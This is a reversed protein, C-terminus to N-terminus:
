DGKCFTVVDQVDGTRDVAELEARLSVVPEGDIAVIEILSDDFVVYNRFGEGAARSTGDLYRVGAVGHQRLQASSRSRFFEKSDAEQLNVGAKTLASRIKENQQSLPVDFDIFDDDNANIIVEYLRGPEVPPGLEGSDLREMDRRMEAIMAETEKYKKSDFLRKSLTLDRQALARNNSIENKALARFNAPNKRYAREIIFDTERSAARKKIGLVSKYHRAIAENQAFYLGYGYAQNGEGTGIRSLDFRDFEHPSGHFAKISALHLGFVAGGGPLAHQRMERRAVAGTEIAEFVDRVDRFGLGDLANRVRALFQVIIDLLRDIPGGGDMEGFRRGNLSYDSFMNAITEERLLSEVYDDGFDGYAKKYLSAYTADIAYAKRLGMREAFQYMTAFEDDTLLGTQRLAHITEHRATRVPDAAALSVYVIRDAGDWVGNARQGGFMVEAEVRLRVSAPLMAVTRKLEAGIAEWEANARATRTMSRAPDGADALINASDAKAPDFAANVSRINSPDFVFLLDGDDAKVRIADNGASRARKVLEEGLLDWVGVQNFDGYLDVLLDAYNKTAFEKTVVLINKAKTYFPYIAGQVDKPMIPLDNGMGHTTRAYYDAVEPSSTMVFGGRDAPRRFRSGFKEPDIVTIDAWTGHLWQTTTDFGARQAALESRKKEIDFLVAQRKDAADPKTADEIERALATELAKVQAQAEPGRPDDFGHARLPTEARMLGNLGDRELTEAVRRAFAEGARKPAMGGAVARAADSLWDSVPGSTAALREIVDAVSAAEQARAANTEALTNGAAEIRGAERDLLAFLRADGKLAQLAADLTKVRERMLSREVRVTGLLTMQEEAHTPLAMLEGVLLRAERVNAPDAAALEDVMSQHRSRDPVLDGILAAYNPPVVGAVVANFAEGSLRALSRAQRMAESGLPVSSDIIDPRERIIAAADVVSGSGEQLNKKAALARVDGPTWGDAERFIFAQVTTEQDALRLALSRRQHADAIVRTGDTREFVVARGAAIPDWREVGRLRETAGASDGGRKFQFTGADVATQKLDIEAFTVPRGDIDFQRAGPAPADDALAPTRAPPVPDPRVPPAHLDPADAARLSNILAQLHEGDDVGPVRQSLVADAESAAVAGRVAPDADAGTAKAVEIAADIDGNAARNVPNEPPLAKAAADFRAEPTPAGRIARSTGRVGLDLAGGLVAAAVVQRGADQWTYPDGAENAWAKIFPQVAVEAAGNILAARAAHYILSAGKGASGLANVAIMAPDTFSGAMGGAVSAPDLPGLLPVTIAQPSQRTLDDSRRVSSSRREQARQLVNGHRRIDSAKDPLNQALAEIAQEYAAVRRPSGALDGESKTGERYSGSSARFPNELRQGTLAFVADASTDFEQEKLSWASNFNYADRQASFAAGFREVFTSAEAPDPAVTDTERLARNAKELLM